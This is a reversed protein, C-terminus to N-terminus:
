EDNDEWTIKLRKPNDYVVPRCKLAELLKNFAALAEHCGCGTEKRIINAIKLKEEKSMILKYITKRLSLDM